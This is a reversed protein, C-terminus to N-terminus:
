NSGRGGFQLLGEEVTKKAEEQIQQIRANQQEETMQTGTGDAEKAMATVNGDDLDVM